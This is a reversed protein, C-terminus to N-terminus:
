AAPPVEGFEPRGTPQYVHIAVGSPTTRSDALRLGSAVGLDPFLRRGAGVIVPFVLLRWEDVLDNELLTRALTGSGHVQLERGPMGKLKAVEAAIDGKVISSNHWDASRLRTSVVYKPLGNLRSAVPDTADTVKPWYEAFIEYTRRGLLFADAKDFTETIFQGTAEDFLPVLWGGRDFGDSRDEDPGGPGQMVGDVSLFTTITLQM